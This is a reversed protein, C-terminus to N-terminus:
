RDDHEGHGTRAPSEGLYTLYLREVPISEGSLYYTSRLRGASLTNTLNVLSSHTLNEQDSTPSPFSNVDIMVNLIVTDNHALSVSILILSLPIAILLWSSRGSLPMEMVGKIM